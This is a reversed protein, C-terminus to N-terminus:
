RNGDDAGALPRTGDAGHLHLIEHAAADVPRDLPDPVTCIAPAGGLSATLAEVTGEGGDAMPLLVTDVDADVSRLGAAIAEAVQLASASGKFSDPAIIIRM